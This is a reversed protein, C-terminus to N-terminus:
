ELLPEERGPLSKACAARLAAVARRVGMALPSRGEPLFMSIAAVGAAGADICMAARAPSIGGIAIVPARSMAVADRLRDLGALQQPAVKTGGAFMTGFLVYDAGAESASRAEGASHVSRGVTWGAPGLPRVRDVPPGNGRLHVGHAGAALAVDTRDNVLVRTRTGTARESLRRTLDALPRSDLDSERLQIVDVGAEIAEELWSQLAAVEDRATRAGPALQRRDTVLHVCPRPPAIM